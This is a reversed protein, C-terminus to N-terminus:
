KYRWFAALMAALFLSAAVLKCGDELWGNIMWADALVMGAFFLTGAIGFAILPRVPMLARRYRWAIILMYLGYAAVLAYDINGWVPHRTSVGMLWARVDDLSEHFRFWDDLAAILFAFTTHTWVHYAKDGARRWRERTTWAVASCVFLMTVSMWTAPANEHFMAEPNSWWVAGTIALGAVYFCTCPILLGVSLGYKWQSTLKGWRERM